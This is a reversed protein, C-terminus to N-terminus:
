RHERLCRRIPSEENTKRDHSELAAHAQGQSKQPSLTCHQIVLATNRFGPRRAAAANSEIRSAMEVPPHDADSCRSRGLLRKNLTTCPRNKACFCYESCLHNKEGLFTPAKRGGEKSFLHPKKVGRLFRFSEELDLDVGQCFAAAFVAARWYRQLLVYWETTQRTCSKEEDMWERFLFYFCLLVFPNHHTLADYECIWLLLNCFSIFFFARCRYHPELTM